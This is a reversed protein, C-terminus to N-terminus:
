VCRPVNGFVHLVSLLTPCAGSGLSQPLGVAADGPIVCVFVCVSGSACALEHACRVSVAVVEGRGSNQLRQHSTPQSESTESFPCGSDGSTGEISDPGLSPGPSRFLNVRCGIEWFSQPLPHSPCAGLDLREWNNGYHVTGRGSFAVAPLQRRVPGLSRAPCLSIIDPNGFSLFSSSAM